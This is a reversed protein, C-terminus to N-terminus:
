GFRESEDRLGKSSIRKGLFGKADKIDGVRTFYITNGRDIAVMREGPKLGMRERVSQPIVVQFKPSVTVTDMGNGYFQKDMSINLSKIVSAGSAEDLEM